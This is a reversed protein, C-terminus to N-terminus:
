SQTDIIFNLFCAQRLKHYRYGQKLLKSTLIKNRNNFDNVCERLFYTVFHICWPLRLSSCRRLFFPFNVIKSHNYDDRKSYIKFSVIDNTISLDEDYLPPAKTDSSNNKNLHLKTPYIQGVM